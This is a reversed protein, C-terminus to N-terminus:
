SAARDVRIRGVTSALLDAQAELSGALRTTDEVMRANHETAREMAVIAENIRDLGASQAHSASAIESVLGSVQQVSHVITNMTSGAEDVSAAGDQVRGISDRILTSIEAAAATCRTALSRVEGAVVAFGKGEDGARAAEVAANLALINTQFAITDIVGV